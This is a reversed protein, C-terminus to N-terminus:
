NTKRRLFAIQGTMFKIQIFSYVVFLITAVLVTDIETLGMSTTDFVPQLAPHFVIIFQLIISIAVAIFLKRNTFIGRGSIYRIRFINYLELLVMLSFAVTIARPVDPLEFIFAGLVISAIVVGTIVMDTLMERNLINEKPNRPRAKMVNDIPTDVGIAISPIGDTILNIWLLQLATLPLIYNGSTDTFGIMIAAFIILVEALNSSLLYLIFNKINGFINRGDKIATVITSFNDDALIMDSAEKAVDTGNIGMAIGIDAKKIAPADNIGDGTMAVIHGKAKLADVIKSKHEPNVRAYINVDEVIKAFEDDKLGNLEEGTLVKKEPMGLEKAIAMATNKNDGTIMVVAIGADMCIKIDDKVEKRPPDIMGVLGLFILNEEKTDKAGADRYAIALVRLARSAMENSSELVSKKITPSMDILTGGNQMKSCADAVIEPAGKTCMVYGSGYKNITSMMKRESTFPIEWFRPSEKELGALGFKEAAVVIAGETPDGVIEWKDKNRLQANTCLSGFRLLKSLQENKTINTGDLLFDGKPEYGVGMVDITKGAMWIKRITMENRTLTGTKDACIISVSGLTEVAHLKRIIANKTAMHQMGMALTITVVAPLGEPIAAVALAVGMIIIGVPEGGRLFGAAVVILCIGLILIGLNKGFKDLSKQLPTNEEGTTQVMHAIKGMETNMGTDAVVATARGYIVVTGMFAMCKMEALTKTKVSEISKKVPVSEGTIASEDIKFDIVEILRVDAPVKDGQELVVVDGPVLTSSQIRQKKGNRIVISEQSALKMLAEMAKEAKYEQLFGFVANLIVVVLIATADLLEGVFASFITAFILIVVLFNTFQSVFIKLPSITEERKLDNLGYSELRSKVEEESLGESSTKLTKLVEDVELESWSPM